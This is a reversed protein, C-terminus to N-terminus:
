PPSEPAYKSPVEVSGQAYMSRVEPTGQAYWYWHNPVKVKKSRYQIHGEVGFLPIYLDANVYGLYLRPSDQANEKEKM